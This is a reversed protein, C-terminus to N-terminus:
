PCWGPTIVRHRPTSGLVRQLPLFDEMCAPLRGTNTKMKCLAFGKSVPSSTQLIQNGASHPMDQSIEAQKSSAEVARLRYINGM